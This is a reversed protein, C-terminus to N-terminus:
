AWGTEHIDWARHRKRSPVFEDYRANIFGGIIRLKTFLPAKRGRKHNLTEGLEWRNNEIEPNDDKPESWEGKCASCLGPDSEVLWVKASPSLLSEEVLSPDSVGVPLDWDLLKKYLQRVVYDNAQLGNYPSRFYSSRYGNRSNFFLDFSESPVSICYIYRSFEAIEDCPDPHGCLVYRFKRIDEVIEAFSPPAELHSARDSGLTGSIDWRESNM